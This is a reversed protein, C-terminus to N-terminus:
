AVDRKFRRRLNDYELREVFSDRAQLISSSEGHYQVEDADLGRSAAWRRWLSVNLSWWSVSLLFGLALLLLALPVNRQRAMGLHAVLPAMLLFFAPVNIWAVGVWITRIMGQSPVIGLRRERRKLLLSTLAYALLMLVLAVMARSVGFYPALWHALFHVLVLLLVLGLLPPIRM